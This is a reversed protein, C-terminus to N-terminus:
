SETESDNTTRKQSVTDLETTELDSAKGDPEKTALHVLWGEYGWNELQEERHSSFFALQSVNTPDKSCKSSVLESLHNQHTRWLVTSYLLTGFGGQYLDARDVMPSFFAM